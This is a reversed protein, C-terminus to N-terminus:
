SDSLDTTMKLGSKTFAKSSCISAAIGNGTVEMHGAGNARLNDIKVVVDEKLKFAGGLGAYCQPATVALGKTGSGTAASMRGSCAAAVSQAHWEAHWEEEEAAVAAEHYCESCGIFKDHSISTLSLATHGFKNSADGFDSASMKQTAAQEAACCSIATSELCPTAKAAPIGTCPPLSAQAPATWDLCGSKCAAKCNKFGYDATVAYCESPALANSKFPSILKLM